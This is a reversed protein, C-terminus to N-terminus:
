SRQRVWVEVRRNKERGEETTNSAVPLEKGYGTVLKPTIGRSQLQEAVVKARDKSLALNGATTGTNDAFGFLLLDVNQNAPATFFEVVRDLDRLAKNDPQSSGTRFRFDLSLRRAGSTEKVYTRPSGEPLEPKAAEVTQSVFGITGLINQGARSLAFEVFRRTWPNQPNEPIYLFLRRSIPYDETSITFRNPLLPRSGSDSVALAKASRVFPVATFGIGNPGNAVADSLQESDEYKVAKESIPSSELVLTKFTDFTGSKDDGPLDFEEGSAHVCCRL